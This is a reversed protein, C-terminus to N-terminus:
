QWHWWDDDFKTRIWTGCKQYNWSSCEKVEALWQVVPNEQM